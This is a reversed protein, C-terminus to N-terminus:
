DQIEDCPREYESLQNDLYETWYEVSDDAPIEAVENLWQKLTM